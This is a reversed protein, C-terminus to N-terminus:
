VVLPALQVMSPTSPMILTTPQTIVPQPTEINIIIYPKPMSVADISGEEISAHYGAKNLENIVMRIVTGPYKESVEFRGRLDRFWAPLVIPLTECNELAQICIKMLEKFKLNVNIRDSIKSAHLHPPISILNSPSNCNDTM